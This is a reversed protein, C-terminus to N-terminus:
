QSPAAARLIEHVARIDDDTPIRDFAVWLNRQEDASRGVGRPRATLQPENDQTMDKEM